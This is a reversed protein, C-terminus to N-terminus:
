ELTFTKTKIPLATWAAKKEALEKAKEEAEMERVKGWIEADTPPMMMRREWESLGGVWKDLVSKMSLVRTEGNAPMSTLTIEFLDLRILDRGKGGARPKSDEALYGFSLGLSGSRMVRWAERAKASRELDLQGGVVLGQATEDMQM